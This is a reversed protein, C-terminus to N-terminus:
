MNDWEERSYVPYNDCTAFYNGDEDINQSSAFKGAEEETEFEGIVRGWGQVNNTNLNSPVAVVIYNVTTKM